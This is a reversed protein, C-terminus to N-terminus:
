RRSSPSRSTTRSRCAPACARARELGARGGAGAPGRRVRRRTIASTPEGALRVRDRGRRKAAYLARDAASSSATSTAPAARRRRGLDDRRHGTRARRDPAGLGRAAPGPRHPAAGRRRCTPRSCSSSRAAGARSARRLPAHRRPHAADARGAGLRRGPARAHRQHAQFPRRRAAARRAHHGRARRARGRVRAGRRPPSPQVHRDARRHPLPARGRLARARAGGRPAEPGDRRHARRRGAAVRGRALARSRPRADLAARWRRRDHPVRLRRARRRLGHLRDDRLARPRGPPRVRGLAGGLGPGM